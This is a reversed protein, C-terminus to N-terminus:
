PRPRPEGARSAPAHLGCARSFRHRHDAFARYGWDFVRRLLPTVSLVYLPFAWWLRRLVYRYADAGRLQTGDDLLLWLDRYREEPTAALRAAVWESQLPAVRLGLKGLTPAWAPVWRRCFGCADDYLVFGGPKTM